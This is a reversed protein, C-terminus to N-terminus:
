LRVAIKQNSTDKGVFALFLAEIRGELVQLCYEGSTLLVGSINNAANNTRSKKLIAEMEQVDDPSTLRSLYMVLYLSM